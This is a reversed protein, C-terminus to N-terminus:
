FESGSTWVALQPIFICHLQTEFSTVPLNNTIYLHLKLTFM